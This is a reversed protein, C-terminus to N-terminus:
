QEQELAAHGRPKRLLRAYFWLLSGIGVLITAVLWPETPDKVIRYGMWSDLRVYTLRGGGIAVTEGPRVSMRQEDVRLVLYHRIEREGLGLRQAGAPPQPAAELNLMVWAQPGAPLPWATAPGLGETNSDPLQVTGFSAEGGTPQWQFVPSFGRRGTAYIRYGDLVLPRDDGIEAVHNQGADDWWRVRNYTSHYQGRQPFNETFGENAFRLARVGDGHLPGRADKVLNGEFATGATLITAGDFYILRALALLAVLALLALHFLLLPLDARFRPNTLVSAALNVVLLSLPLVTALTANGGGQAVWLGGVAMLLFFAVTLRPSALAEVLGRPVQRTLRHLLVAM